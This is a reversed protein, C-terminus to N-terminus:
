SFVNERHHALALRDPSFRNPLDLPKGAIRILAVEHVESPSETLLRPSVAIRLDADVALL